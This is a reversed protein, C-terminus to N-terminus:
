HKNFDLGKTEVEQLTKIDMQHCDYVKIGHIIEIRCLPKELKLRSENRVTPGM